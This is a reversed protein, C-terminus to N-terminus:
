EPVEEDRKRKKGKRQEGPASAPEEAAEAEREAKLRLRGIRYEKEVLQMRNVESPDLVSTLNNYIKYSMAQLLLKTPMRM